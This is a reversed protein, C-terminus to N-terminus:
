FPTTDFLHATSVFLPGNLFLLYTFLYIFNAANGNGKSVWIQEPILQFAEEGFRHVRGRM